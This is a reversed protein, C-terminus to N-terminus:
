LISTFLLKIFDIVSIGFVNLVTAFLSLGICAAITKIIGSVGENIIVEKQSPKKCIDSKLTTIESKVSKMDEELNLIDSSNKINTANIEYLKTNVSDSYKDLKSDINQMWSKITEFESM